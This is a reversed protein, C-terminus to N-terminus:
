KTKLKDCRNQIDLSNELGSRSPSVEFLVNKARFNLLYKENPGLQCVYVIVEEVFKVANFRRRM